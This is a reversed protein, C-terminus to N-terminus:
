GLPTSPEKKINIIDYLYKKGDADCRIIMRVKFYNYKDIEGDNNYIALAFRSDYRYWGYKADISHKSEFNESYTGNTSIEILEPIAQSANAKTKALAGKLKATYRSNSYEDPLDKGIYIKEGDDAITYMEGIYQKIYQEVESWNINQKNRIITDHIIVIKNGNTDVVINVNRNSSKKKVDKEKILIEYKWQYCLLRPLYNPPTRRNAEWDELTRLPIGFHESFEKRSMCTAVRLEVIQENITM